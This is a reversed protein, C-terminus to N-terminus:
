TRILSKPIATCQARECSIDDDSLRIRNKERLESGIKEPSPAHVNCAHVHTWQCLLTTFYEAFSCCGSLM